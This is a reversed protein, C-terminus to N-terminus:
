REFGGRRARRYRIYRTTWLPVLVVWVLAILRGAGHNLTVNVIFCLIGFFAALWYYPVVAREMRAM